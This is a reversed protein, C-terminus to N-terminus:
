NDGDDGSIMLYFENKQKQKLENNSINTAKNNRRRRKICASHALEFKTGLKKCHWTIDNNNELIQQNNKNDRSM